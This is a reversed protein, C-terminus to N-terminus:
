VVRCRRRRSVLASLMLAAAWAVSTAGTRSASCGGSSEEAASPSPICAAGDCIFGPYCETSATCAPFCKGEVPNCRYPSCSRPASKDAPIASLEDDTCTSRAPICKGTDCINGKACEDDKACSTKCTTGSCVFPACTKTGGGKCGGAGDCYSAETAIGETCSAKGCEVDPGSKFAACKLRDAGDCTLSRCVDSGGDSCVTRSGHVAGKVATCKGLSGAVDCAECQGNCASECCVGDVCAGSSCQTGSTCTTGNAKQCIGKSAGAATGACFEGTGCAAVSCCVKTTGEGATCFTGTACDADLDCVTGLGGTTKCNGSKCTYGTTCDAPTTCLAKCTTAGCTYPACPTPTATGCGGAGNCRADSSAVDGTCSAAACVAEAGPFAKCATRDSGDCKGKCTGTGSCAARVVGHPNGVVAICTGENGGVDCAECQGSCTVNCCVGDACVGSGCEANTTCSVGRPRSCTGVSNANCKLPATCSPTSCCVGDVCNGSACQTPSTCVTGLAGTTVCVGSSCFYGTACDTGTVCSSKCSTPGCIYAGCNTSPPTSCNGSGDCYADPIATGSTCSATGCNTTTPPPTGCVSRDSGNCQAACKGTGVCAGRAGHPVGVVATCTGEAGSVDCAECKGTCTSNCCVGDACVGSGCETGTTCAVGRPKSCTGVGNANCKLPATCSTSSCCVGDVCNGSSCQSPATCTTGTAGTSVCTTGSCFYGTVCDANTSCTTKCATAGCTYVSCSAPSAALCGGTGNCFRTPTTAFRGPALPDSACTPGACSTSTNPYPGCATASTGDCSAQCAGTGDCAGRSGHPQGSTVTTCTGLSTGIDCAQCKGGCAVNCCYGDVCNGTTCEKALTCANGNPKKYACTGGTTCYATAVCDSDATCTTTCAGAKCVLYPSTCATRSGHPATGNTNSCTGVSGVNDCAQCQGTCTTNCCVGDVCPTTAGATCDASTVCTDGRDGISYLEAGTWGGAVLVEGTSLVVNPSSMHNVLMPTTATTVKTTWDYLRPAVSLNGPFFLRGGILEIPTISATGSITGAAAWTGAGATPEWTMATGSSVVFAKGNKLALMMPTGAPAFSGASTWANTTPDYQWADDLPFDLGDSFTGGAVLVKGGTLSVAAHGHRDGPGSGPQATWTKTTPNFLVWDPVSYYTTNTRGGVVLAKSGPLASLTFDTAATTAVTGASSWTNATPDYIEATKTPTTTSGSPIWGGVALVRGDTLLTALMAERPGSLSGAASFTGATRDYLECSSLLTGGSNRGGILLVKGSNLVVMGHNGRGTLLSGTATWKPDLAIPYSLGSTDLAAVLTDGDLRLSMTRHTGHADVAFLPETRLRVRGDRDLVEVRAGDALRVSAVQPGRAIHYRAVSSAQPGRLVRIEEVVGSAVAHVVDVAPAADRFVLASDVPTGEVGRLGSSDIDIWFDNAGRVAIRMPASAVAPLTADLEEGAMRWGKTSTIARYGDGVRELRAGSALQPAFEQHSRLSAVVASAGDASPASADPSTGDNTSAPGHCAALLLAPLILRVPRM